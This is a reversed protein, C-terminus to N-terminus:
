AKKMKVFGKGIVKEGVTDFMITMTREDQKILMGSGFKPHILTDGNEFDDKIKEKTKRKSQVLSDFPKARSTGGYGDANGYVRGSSVYSGLWGGDSKLGSKTETKRKMTVDGDMYRDDMENLFISESQFDTKGYMMRQQTGTLYLKEKARTIGVYCLRREDEMNDQDSFAAAGPFVGNEMGPMFVIPFELGKASHLTMLSIANESDDKNDIDSMLAVKEIFAGLVSIEERKIGLEALMENEDDINESLSSENDSFEKEFEEIISKFEMLNEIRSDAEVTEAKELVDLYGSRNLINDYIDILKLNEIENRIDEIMQVLEKTAFSAKKSMAETINPEKLAEFISIGSVKAYNTVNNLTKDGIGRKPENIIRLMSIDDNPNEVLKMYAMMDKVEKRDYYRLGSLVKYPMGRFTFKEEFPRSQANKRYLIAIDSYRYGKSVLEDIENGIWWAELKEDVTRKYTIKEGAHHETWLTKSKRGMNNKIVSNSLALINGTSRYNQELKIVLSDKFDQEFDLINRIDAGRWQYICQDDDGVVCINGHKSALMKILEYQLHNTDQYEDVMIYRFKNSYYNLLEDSASFMKVTNWLLDDFDMANNTFLAKNYAEYIESIIRDQQINVSERLYDDPTKENEKCKSIISAIMSIPFQKEDIVLDKYVRKLASKKDSEDYITFGKKYGIIEPTFQLMTSCMAHFTKIWMGKTDKVLSQVRQRMENAAHNTFTVALINRSDIGMNIMHAIRHTMTATKGSGAGALILVPGEIHEIAKKQEKNINIGM